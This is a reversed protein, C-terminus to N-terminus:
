FKFLAAGSGHVATRHDLSLVVRLPCNFDFCRGLFCAPRFLTQQRVKDWTGFAKDVDAMFAAFDSYAMSM